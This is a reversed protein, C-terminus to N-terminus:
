VTSYTQGASSIPVQQLTYVRYLAWNLAAEPTTSLSPLCRGASELCEAPMAVLDCHYHITCIEKGLLYFILINSSSFNLSIVSLFVAPTMATMLCTGAFAASVGSSINQSRDLSEHM